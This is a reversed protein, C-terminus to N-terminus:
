LDKCEGNNDFSIFGSDTLLTISESGDYESITFFTGVPVWKILCGNLGGFYTGKYGLAEIGDCFQEYDIDHDRYKMFLEIVNKDYALRHDNWTSWGAGFGKSVLVAVKGDKIYGVM